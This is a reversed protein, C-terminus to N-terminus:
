SHERLKRLDKASKILMLALLTVISVLATIVCAYTLPTWFWNDMWLDKKMAQFGFLPFLM